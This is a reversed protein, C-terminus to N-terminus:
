LAFSLQKDNENIWLKKLPIFARARVTALLIQFITGIKYYVFGLLEWVNMKAITKIQDRDSGRDIVWILAKHISELVQDIGM